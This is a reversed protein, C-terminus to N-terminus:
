KVKKIFSTLDNIWGQINPDNSWGANMGMRLLYISDWLKAWVIDAIKGVDVQANGGGSQELRAVQTRLASVQAKLSNVERNSQNLLEVTRNVQARLTEIQQYVGALQKDDIDVISGAVPDEPHIYGRVEILEQTSGKNLALYLKNYIVHLSGHCEPFFLIEQPARGAVTKWVHIGFESSPTLRGMSTTYLAGSKDLAIETRTSTYNGGPKSINSPVQM